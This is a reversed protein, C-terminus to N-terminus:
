VPTIGRIAIGGRSLREVKANWYEINKRIEAANARTLQRGAVGYFQGTSVATDAALWIALQAQAQILTIGAL